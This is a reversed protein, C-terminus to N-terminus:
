KRVYWPKSCVVFREVVVVGVVGWWWWGVVWWGGGWGWGLTGVGGVGGM